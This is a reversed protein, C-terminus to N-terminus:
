RGAGVGPKTQSGVSLHRRRNASICIEDSLSLKNCCEGLIGQRVVSFFQETVMADLPRGYPVAWNITNTRARQCPFLAHTEHYEYLGPNRTNQLTVYCAGWPTTEFRIPTASDGNRGHHIVHVPEGGKFWGHAVERHWVDLVNDLTQLLANSKQIRNGKGAM